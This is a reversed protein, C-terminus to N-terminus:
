RKTPSRDVSRALGFRRVFWEICAAGDASGPDCGVTASRRTASAVLDSALSEAIARYGELHATSILISEANNDFGHLTLDPPLTDVKPEVGLLDRVTAAYEQNTLRRLYMPGPSKSRRRLSGARVVKRAKRM